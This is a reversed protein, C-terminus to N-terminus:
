KVVFFERFTKQKETVPNTIIPVFTIDDGKIDSSLNKAVVGVYAHTAFEATAFGTCYTEGAAEDAKVVEGSSWEGNAITGAGFGWYKSGTEPNDFNFVVVAGEESMSDCAFIKDIVIGVSKDTNLNKIHFGELGALDADAISLYYTQYESTLEKYIPKAEEVTEPDNNCSTFGVTAAVMLGISVITLIKKM